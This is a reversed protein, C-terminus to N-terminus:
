GIVSAAPRYHSPNMGVPLGGPYVWGDDTGKALAFLVGDCIFQYRGDRAADDIRKFDLRIACPEPVPAAM